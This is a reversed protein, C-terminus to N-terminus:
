GAGLRLQHRLRHYPGWYPFSLVEERKKELRLPLFTIEPRM